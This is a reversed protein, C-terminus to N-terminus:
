DGVYGLAELAARTEPEIELEESERLDSLAADLAGLLGPPAEAGPHLEHPDVSLEYVEVWSGDVEGIARHHGLTVSAKEVRRTEDDAAHAQGRLWAAVPLQDFAPYGDAGLGAATLLAHGVGVTSVPGVPCPVGAPLLLPTALNARYLHQQHSAIENHGTLSEGHDGVVLLVRPRGPRTQDLAALADGVIADTRAVGALYEGARRWGKEPSVAMQATPDGMGPLGPFPRRRRERKSRTGRQLRRLLRAQSSLGVSAPHEAFAEPDPLQERLDVGEVAAEGAASGSYPSHADYLHVWVFVPASGRGGLWASM